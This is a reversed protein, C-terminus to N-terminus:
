AETVVRARRALALFNSMEEVELVEGIGDGIGLEVVLIADDIDIVGPRCRRRGNSSNSPRAASQGRLDSLKRGSELHGLGWSCSTSRKSRDHRAHGPPNPVGGGQLNRAIQGVHAIVPLRRWLIQVATGSTM